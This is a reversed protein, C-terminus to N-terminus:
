KWFDTVSETVNVLARLFTPHNNLGPTRRFERIGAALAEERFQIDIENLTEIHDTVFAIPVVLLQKTGERGLKEIVEHTSPELWKVPGLKSQWALTWPGKWGAHALIGEASQEMEKKYPDGEETVLKEPISHASFVLHIKETVPESFKKVEEKILDAHAELFLALTPWSKTEFLQASPAFRKVASRVRDHSGKTTTYSYQPYLPVNLIKQVGSGALEKVVDEVLPSSCTFATKVAAEKGVNRLLREVGESQQDTLKRIPSGGGISAYLAQSKKERATSIMWAVFKRLPSFKIRIIEPDEFLRYLFPKVDALTEPGGLNTFLIARKPM